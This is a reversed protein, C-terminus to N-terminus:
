SGFGLLVGGGSMSNGSFSGGGVNMNKSDGYLNLGIPRLDISDIIAEGETTEHV